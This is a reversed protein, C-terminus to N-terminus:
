PDTIRDDLNWYRQWYGKKGRRRNKEREATSKGHVKKNGSTEEM